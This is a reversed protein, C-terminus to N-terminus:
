LKSTGDQLLRQVDAEFSAPPTTPAYRQSPRGHKDVLFKTFNWKIEDGLTGKLATQLYKFVPRANEGNVDAKEFLMFKSSYNAAFQKIEEPTGPEQGGFQNSPFLLVLLGKEGFQKELEAIESYNKETLGCKCAVNAILLVKDKFKPDSFSINNGEIDKDAFEYITQSTAAASTFSMAMMSSAGIGWGHGGPVKSIRGLRQTTKVAAGLARMEVSLYTYAKGL